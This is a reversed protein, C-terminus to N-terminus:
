ADATWQGYEAHGNNHNSRREAGCWCVSVRTIGGHAARNPRDPRVPGTFPEVRTRAARHVHKPPIEEAREDPRVKHAPMIEWRPASLGDRAVIAWPRRQQNAKLRAIHRASKLSAYTM